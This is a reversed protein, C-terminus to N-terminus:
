YNKGTLVCLPHEYKYGNKAAKKVAGLTLGGEVSCDYGKGLLYRHEREAEEDSIVWGFGKSREVIDSIQLQRPTFRAVIADAVSKKSEIFDRDYLRALPHISQSQVFHIAPHYGLKECGLSFGVLTTGSSVPLFVADPKEGFSGETFLEYALTEYGFLANEDKSQRLNYVNNEKAYKFANSVPKDSIELRCGSKKLVELKNKNINPSVFVTLKIGHLNCYCAASIAANGSSSIVASNIGKEELVATQYALSRDKVSGTPNEYECKFYISEERKLSTSGEDLTKQFNREVKPLLKQYEWIGKKVQRDM